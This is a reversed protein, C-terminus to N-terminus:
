GSFLRFSAPDLGAAEVVQRALSLQEADLGYGVSDLDGATIDDTVAWVVAQVVLLDGAAGADGLAGLVAVLDPGAMEGLSLAGGESPNGDHAEACYAELLYTRLDDDPLTIEDVPEYSSPGSVLGELGAVVLDQEGAVPNSLMLGPPVTLELTEALDGVTRILLEVVDGSAGGSARFEVEVLGAEVAEVLGYREVARTTTVVRTTTPAPPQTTAPIPDDAATSTVTAGSTDGEDDSPFFTNGV